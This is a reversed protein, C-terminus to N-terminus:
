KDNKNAQPRLQRVVRGVQWIEKAGLEDIEAKLKEKYDAQSNCKIVTEAESGSEVATYLKEFVPLTAQKFADQWDLAGRQATTSCNSFMWDMGNEGVLPLLSETFEEVTENFAESPTHGHQRLVEYQAEFLGAIAGMLAGREGVLDSIVEKSVTTPFLFGSGIAIGYALAKYKANGTADQFVAYSSNIGNGAVFQRRVSIGAGKPAVLIVDIDTPPVIKTKEPFGLGFGHSFCLTKGATLHPIIEPWLAIQGADSLMNCIFTGRKVAENISFLTEGPVWGDDIAKQWSSTGERQGVIVNVGNDRLNLAQAPGQVGYGLMAITEAQLIEQAKSLPVEERTTIDEKFGAFNLETM